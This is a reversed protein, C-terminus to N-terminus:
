LVMDSFLYVKDSNLAKLAEETISKKNVSIEVDVAGHSDALTAKVRNQDDISINQAKAFFSQGIRSSLLADITLIKKGSNQDIEDTSFNRHGIATIAEAPTATTTVVTLKYNVVTLKGTFDYTHGTQVAAGETTFNITGTSDALLGASQVKARFKLERKKGKKLYKKAPDAIEELNAVTFFQVEKQTTQTAM